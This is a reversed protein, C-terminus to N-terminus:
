MTRHFFAPELTGPHYQIFGVLQWGDRSRLDKSRSDQPKQGDSARKWELVDAGWRFGGGPPIPVRGTRYDQGKGALVFALSFTDKDGAHAVTLSRIPPLRFQL